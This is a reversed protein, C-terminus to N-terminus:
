NTTFAVHKSLYVLNMDICFLSVDVNKLISVKLSEMLWKIISFSFPILPNVSHYMYRRNVYVDEIAKV